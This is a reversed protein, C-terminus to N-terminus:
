LSRQLSRLQKQNFHDPILRGLIEKSTLEPNIALQIKISEWIGEFPDKRTRWTRSELIKVSKKINKYHEIYILDPGDQKKLNDITYKV